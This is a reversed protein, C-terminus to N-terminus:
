GTQDINATADERVKAILRYGMGKATILIYKDDIKRRLNCIHVRLTRLDTFKDIAIVPTRRFVPLIEERTVLPKSKLLNFIAEEKETLGYNTRSHHVSLSQQM